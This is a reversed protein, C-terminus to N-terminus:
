NFFFRLFMLRWTYATKFCLKLHMGFCFEVPVRFIDTLGPLVSEKIGRWGSARSMVGSVGFRLGLNDCVCETGEWGSGEVVAVAIQCGPQAGEDERQGM